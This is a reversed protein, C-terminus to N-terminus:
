RSIQGFKGNQLDRRATLIEDVTNMVFPGAGVVPENLPDGSLVLFACDQHALVALSTGERGLLAVQVSKLTIQGFLTM